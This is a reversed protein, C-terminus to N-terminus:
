LRADLKLVTTTSDASHVGSQRLSKNTTVVWSGGSGPTTQTISPTSRMEVEIIPKNINAASSTASLTFAGSYDQFYRKCLTLEVGINRRDFATVVTGLELQPLALTGTEWEVTANASGDLTDTVAGSDGYSGGDIRVQATGVHSLIYDGAAINAAEVVQVLTGASITVTTIGNTTSFTYSCGSAGGKFMDHGYDGASLVVSGSVEEQNVFFNGILLNRGTLSGLKSSQYDTLVNADTAAALATRVVSATIAGGSTGISESLYDRLNNMATKFTGETVGAATFATKAPLDTM